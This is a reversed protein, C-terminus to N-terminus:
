VRVVSSRILLDMFVWSKEKQKKIRKEAVSKLHGIVILTANRTQTQNHREKRTKKYQTPDGPFFLVEAMMAQQM